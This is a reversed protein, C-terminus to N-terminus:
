EPRPERDIGYIDPPHEFITNIIMKFLYKWFKISGVRKSVTQLEWYYSITIRDISEFKNSALTNELVDLM